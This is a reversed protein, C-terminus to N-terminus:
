RERVLQFDIICADYVEYFDWGDVGDAGNCGLTVYITDGVSLTGLSGNFDSAALSQFGDKSLASVLRDNVYVDFDVGNGDARYKALSSNAIRVKGAEGPQITYAIIARYDKGDIFKGPHISTKAIRGYRFIWQDPHNFPLNGIRTFMPFIGGGNASPFTNVTNPALPQYNAAAGLTGDPNWLYNWGAAPAETGGFPQASGLPSAPFEASFDAIVASRPPADGAAQVLPRIFEAPQAPSPELTQAIRLSQDATLTRQERTAAGSTLSVLAKGEFVWVDTVGDAAVKVSFETGLDVVKGRPVRIAFPAGSGVMRLSANGRHLIIESESIIEFDSPASLTLVQNGIFKVALTGATLHIRGPHLDLGSQPAQPLSWSVAKAVTTVALTEGAPTKAANRWPAWLFLGLALPVLAAVAMPMIVRRFWGPHTPPAFDMQQAADALELHTALYSRYYDRAAPNRRLIEELRAKDTEGLVGDVLKSLLSALPPPPRPKM